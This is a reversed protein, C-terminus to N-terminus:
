NMEGLRGLDEPRLDTVVERLVGDGMIAVADRGNVTFESLVNLRHAVVIVTNERQTFEEDIIKYITSETVSDLSSTVEDLLVVPKLGQGALVNGKILARSLAFLQSQGVSLQQFTSVKRDLIPHEGSEPINIM